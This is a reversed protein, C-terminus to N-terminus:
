ASLVASRRTRAKKHARGGSRPKPIGVNWPLAPHVSGYFAPVGRQLSHAPCHCFVFQDAIQFSSCNPKGCGQKRIDILEAYQLERLTNVVKQRGCHLLAVVECIPYYLYIRGYEDACGNKRSLETRRLIFAYLGKAENSLPQFTPAEFLFNPLRTFGIAKEPQPIYITNTM